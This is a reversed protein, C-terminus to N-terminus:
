QGATDTTSSATTVSLVYRGTGSGAGKFEFDPFTSIAVAYEGDAPIEIV